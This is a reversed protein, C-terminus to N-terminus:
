HRSGNDHRRIEDNHSTGSLQDDRRALVPNFGSCLLDIATIRGHDVDAFIRHAVERHDDAKAVVLQYALSLRHAVVATSRVIVTFQDWDHFWSEWREIVPRAGMRVDAGSPQLARFRVRPHLHLTLGHFDRALLADLFRDGTESMAGWEGVKGEQRIVVHRL